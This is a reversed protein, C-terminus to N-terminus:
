HNIYCFYVNLLFLFDVESSLNEQKVLEEFNVIDEIDPVFCIANSCFHLGGSRVM